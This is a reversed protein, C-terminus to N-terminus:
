AALAPDARATTFQVDFDQAFGLRRKSSLQAAFLRADADEILEVTGGLTGDDLLAAVVAAHLRNRAATPALGGEGEVFGDVTVTMVRRTIDVERELVRHGSDTIGLAPFDIPDGAPELEVEPALPALAAVIAALITDRVTM